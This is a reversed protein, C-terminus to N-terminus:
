CDTRPSIRESLFLQVVENDSQIKPKAGHQRNLLDLIEQLTLGRTDPLVFVAFLFDMFCFISLLFFTFHPGLSASIDNFFLTLLFAMFWSSGASIASGIGKVNPPFMEGMVTYPLIGFGISFLIIFGVLSVLPWWPYSSMDYGKNILYFFMGLSIQFVTMGAASVILLNKSGFPKTLPVALGQVVFLVLGIIISSVSSSFSTGSMIFISEAYFLIANIGSLQQGVLLCVSIILGKLNGRIRVLDSLRAKEAMSKTVEEQIGTLENQVEQPSRDTRLWALSRLASSMDNNRIFYYPSEPIFSFLLLFLVPPILNIWILVAYSVYPGFVYEILYGGVLLCAFLAGVPGRVQPESIEAVYVPLGVFVFGGAFGGLFRGVYIHWASTALLLVSWGLLNIVIALLLTWRRGLKDMAWGGLFPGFLTGFATLSGVWSAEAVSLHLFSDSAELKPLTPSTWSYHTGISVSALNAAVIVV